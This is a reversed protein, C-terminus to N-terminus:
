KNILLTNYFSHVAASLCDSGTFYESCIARLGKLFDVKNDTRLMSLKFNVETGPAIFRKLFQIAQSCSNSRLAYWKGINKPRNFWDRDYPSNRMYILHLDVPMQNGVTGNFVTAYHKSCPQVPQCHNCRLARKYDFHCIHCTLTLDLIGGRTTILKGISFTSIGGEEFQINPLHWCSPCADGPDLEM